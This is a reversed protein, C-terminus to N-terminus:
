QGVKVRLGVWGRGGGGGVGKMCHHALVCDVCYYGITMSPSKDVVLLTHQDGNSMSGTWRRGGVVMGGRGAGM